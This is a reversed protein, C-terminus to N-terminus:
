YNSVVVLLKHITFETGIEFDDVLHNLEVVVDQYNDFYKSKTEDWNIIRNLDDKSWEYGNYFREKTINWVTYQEILKM